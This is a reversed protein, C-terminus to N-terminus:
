PNKAVLFRSLNFLFDLHHWRPSKFGTNFQLWKFFNYFIKALAPKTSSHIQAPTKFGSDLTSLISSIMAVKGQETEAQSCGLM